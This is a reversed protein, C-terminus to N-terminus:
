LLYICGILKTEDKSSFKYDTTAKAITYNRHIEDEQKMGIGTLSSSCIYDGVEIDGSQGCVLIAGEGSSNVLKRREDEELPTLTTGFNGNIYENVLKDKGGYVGFVRKDKPKNCVNLIPLAEDITIEDKVSYNRIKGTSILLMGEKLTFTENPKEIVNRHKGTFLAGDTRSRLIYAGGSYGSGTYNFRLAQFEVAPVIQQQIKWHGLYLPKGDSTSDSSGTTLRIEGNSYMIANNLVNITTTNPMQIIATGNQGLSLTNSSNSYINDVYLPVNMINNTENYATTVSGNVDFYNFFRNGIEMVKVSNCSFRYKSNVSTTPINFELVDGTMNIKTHNSASMIKVDNYLETFPTSVGNDSIKILEVSNQKFSFSNGTGNLSNLSDASTGSTLFTEYFLFNTQSVGSPSGFEYDASLATLRKNFGIRGVGIEIWICGNDEQDNSGLRLWGATEPSVPTIWKVVGYGTLDTLLEGIQIESDNSLGRTIKFNCSSSILNGFPNIILSGTNFNHTGSGSNCTYYIDRNSSILLDNLSDTQEIKLGDDSSFELGYGTSNGRIYKNTNGFSLKIGDIITGGSSKSIFGSSLNVGYYYLDNGNRYLRNNVLGPPNDVNFEIFDTKLDLYTEYITFPYTDVSSNNKVIFRHRKLHEVSYDISSNSNGYIFSTTLSPSQLGTGGGYKMLPIEYGNFFLSEGGYLGTIRYIKNTISSPITNGEFIIGRNDDITLDRNIEIDENKGNIKLATYLSNSSNRVKMEIAYDGSTSQDNGAQLTLDKKDIGSAFIAVDNNDGSFVLNTDTFYAGAGATFNIANSTANIVNNGNIFLKWYGDNEDMFMYTNPYSDSQLYFKDGGTLALDSSLSQLNTDSKSVFDNTNIVSGNIKLQTTDIGDQNITLPYTTTTLFGSTTSNVFRTSIITNDNSNNHIDFLHNVSDYSISNESTFNLLNGGIDLNGTMLDGSKSVKNLIDDANKKITESTWGVGKITNIEATNQLVLTKVNPDLITGKYDIINTITLDDVTLQGLTDGDLNSLGTGVNYFQNNFDM